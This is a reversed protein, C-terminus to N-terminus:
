ASLNVWEVRRTRGNVEKFDYHHFAVTNGDNEGEEGGTQPHADGAPVLENDTGMAPTGAEPVVDPLPHDINPINQPPQQGQQTQTQTIPSGGLALAYPFTGMDEVPGSRYQFPALKPPLDEEWGTSGPHFDLLGLSRLSPLTIKTNQM